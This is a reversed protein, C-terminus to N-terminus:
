NNIRDNVRQQYRCMAQRSGSYQKCNDDPSTLVARNYEYEDVIGHIDNPSLRPVQILKGNRWVTRYTPEAPARYHQIGLNDVRRLVREYIRSERTYEPSVGTRNRLKELNIVRQSLEQLIRNRNTNELLQVGQEPIGYYNRHDSDARMGPTATPATRYDPGYLPTVLPNGFTYAHASPTYAALALFALIPTLLSTKM